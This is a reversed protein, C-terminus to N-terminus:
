MQTFAAPYSSGTTPAMYFPHPNKPTLFAQFSLDATPAKTTGKM